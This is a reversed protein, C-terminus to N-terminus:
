TAVRAKLNPSLKLHTHIESLEADHEGIEREIGDVRRSLNDHKEKLHGMGLEISNISLHMKFLVAVGRWVGWLIGGLLSLTAVIVSIIQLKEPM